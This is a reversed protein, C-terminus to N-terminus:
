GFVAQPRLTLNGNAHRDIVYDDLRATPFELYEAVAHKVQADDDAAGLRRGRLALDFSRGGFRVHIVAENEAARDAVAGLTNFRNM